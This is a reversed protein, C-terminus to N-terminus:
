LRDYLLLILRDRASEDGASWLRLLSTVESSAPAMGVEATRSVASGAYTNRESLALLILRDTVRHRKLPHLSGMSCPSLIDTREESRADLVTRLHARNAAVM